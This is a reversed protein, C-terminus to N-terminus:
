RRESRLAEKASKLFTEKYEDKSGNFEFSGDKLVKGLFNQAGDYVTFSGDDNEFATGYKYGGKKWEKKYGKNEFAINMM